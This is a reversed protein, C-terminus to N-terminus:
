RAYMGWSESLKLMAETKKELNEDHAYISKDCIYADAKLRGLVVDDVVIKHKKLWECLSNYDGWWRSTYIIVKIKKKRLSKILAIMRQNSVNNILKPVYGDQKHNKPYLGLTEDFDVAVVKPNNKM